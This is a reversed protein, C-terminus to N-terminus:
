NRAPARVYRRLVLRLRDQMHPRLRLTWPTGAADEWAKSSCVEPARLHYLALYRQRGDSISARMRFRRAALCGPVASLRPLHEEDYWRHFDAEADPAINMANLLLAGAGDPAAADGPTLQDAEYRCIRQVQAIVRKSWPSLNAGGIALYAPTMLVALSDLDYTAISIQPNEAGVWRECNIFGPTRAREPVHETDYWDNFEGADAPTSDFGAVLLGLPM